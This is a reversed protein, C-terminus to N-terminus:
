KGGELEVAFEHRASLGSPESADEVRYSRPVPGATIKYVLEVDEGDRKVSMVLRDGPLKVTMPGDVFRTAQGNPDPLVEYSLPEGDFRMWGEDIASQVFGDSFAHVDPVDVIEVHALPWPQGQAPPPGSKDAHKILQM